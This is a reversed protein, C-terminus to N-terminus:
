VVESLFGDQSKWCVGLLGGCDWVREEDIVGMSVGKFSM